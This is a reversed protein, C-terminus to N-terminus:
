WGQRTHEFQRPLTKLSIYHLDMYAKGQRPRTNAPILLMYKQVHSREIKNRKAKICLRVIYSHSDQLETYLDPQGSSVSIQGVEAEWNQSKLHSNSCGAQVQSRVLRKGLLLYYKNGTGTIENFVLNSM